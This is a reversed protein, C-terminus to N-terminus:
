LVVKIQSICSNCFTHGCSIRMPDDFIDQCIPCTLYKEVKEREVFNRQEKTYKRM